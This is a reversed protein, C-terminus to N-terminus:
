KAKEDSDDTGSLDLMNTGESYEITRPSSVRLLRQTIDKIKMASAEMTRLKATLEEDLDKRHLLLLQINGLIATLPNNIEHNVTIATEIIAGLREKDIAARDLSSEGAAGSAVVNLAIAASLAELFLDESVLRGGGEQIGIVAGFTVSGHRLPMTFSQGPIEGGFSMYASLLKKEKRLGRFLDEEISLLRDRSDEGAAHTVGLTVNMDKDWLYVAAASLGVSDAALMLALETTARVDEGHSGAVALRRLIDYRHQKEKAM